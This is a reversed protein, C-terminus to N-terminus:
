LVDDPLTKNAQDKLMRDLNNLDPKRSKDSSSVGFDM